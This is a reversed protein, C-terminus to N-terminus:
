DIMSLARSYAFLVLGFFLLTNELKKQDEPSQKALASLLIISVFSVITIITTAIVFPWIKTEVRQIEIVHKTFYDALPIPYIKNLTEIFALVNATGYTLNYEMVLFLVVLLLVIVAGFTIATITNRPIIIKNMTFSRLVEVSVDRVNDRTEIAFFKPTVLILSLLDLVNTVISLRPAIRTAWNSISEINLAVLMIGTFVLFTVSLRSAKSFRRPGREQDSPRKAIRRVETVVNGSFSGIAKGTRRTIRWLWRTIVIIVSALVAGGIPHVVALGAAVMLSHGITSGEATDSVVVILALGACTAALGLVGTRRWHRFCLLAGFTFGGLSSAALVTRVFLVLYAHGSVATDPIDEAGV